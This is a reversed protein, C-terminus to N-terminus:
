DRFPGRNTNKDITCFTLPTPKFSVYILSEFEISSPSSIKAAIIFKSSDLQVLPDKCERM